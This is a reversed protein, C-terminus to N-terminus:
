SGMDVRRDSQPGSAPSYKSRAENIKGFRQNQRQDLASRGASGQIIEGLGVRDARRRPHNRPPPAHGPFGVPALLSESNEIRSLTRESESNEVASYVSQIRHRLSTPLYLFSTGGVGLSRRPLCFDSTPFDPTERGM